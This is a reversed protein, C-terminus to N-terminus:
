QGDGEDEDSDDSEESGTLQEIMEAKTGSLEAGVLGGIKELTGKDLAALDEDSLFVGPGMDQAPQEYAPGTQAVPALPRGTPDMAAQVTGVQEDYEEPLAMGRDVAYKIEDESLTEDNAIKEAINISM